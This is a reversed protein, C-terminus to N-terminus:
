NAKRKFESLIIGTAVAVNLSEPEQQGTIFNLIAIKNTIFPEIGSSIGNGENGMVIIGKDSLQSKYINEGNMYTGYIPIDSNSQIDKFFNLLDLYHLKVRLLAGMSAQVVKPNFMDVTNKSCIINEIGFWNALRIITGLNGPDQIDDLVLSLQSSIESISFSYEPFQVVAIVNPPTKLQSIKKIGTEDTEILEKINNSAKLHGGWKNTYILFHITLESSIIENVLKNGEAIFMSNIDRFKKLRLSNIFKIKNKSLMTRYKIKECCDLTSINQGKLANTRMNNNM